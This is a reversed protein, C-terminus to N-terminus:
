PAGVSSRRVFHTAYARESGEDGQKSFRLRRKPGKGHRLYKGPTPALGLSLAHEAILRLVRGVRSLGSSIGRELYPLAGRRWAEVQAPEIIELRLLVDVPAVIDGSKLIEAVVEAVLPLLPDRRAQELSPM